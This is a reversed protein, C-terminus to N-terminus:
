IHNALLKAAKRISAADIMLDMTAEEPSSGVGEATSGNPFSAFFRDDRQAISVEEL